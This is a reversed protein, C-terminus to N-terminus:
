TVLYPRGCALCHHGSSPPVEGVHLGRSIAGPHPGLYPGEQLLMKGGYLFTVVDRQDRSPLHQFWNTLAEVPTGVDPITVTM